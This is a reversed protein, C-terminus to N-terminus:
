ITLMISKILGTYFLSGGYCPTAVMPYFSKLTSRDLM